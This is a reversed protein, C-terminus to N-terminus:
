LFASLISIIRCAFPCSPTRDAMPIPLRVQVLQLLYLVLEHDTLQWLCRIAYRRVKLDPFQPGLLELARRPPLLPWGDLLRHAEVVQVAIRTLAV